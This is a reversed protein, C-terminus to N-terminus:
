LNFVYASRAICRLCLFQLLFWVVQVVLLQLIVTRSCFIMFLTCIILYVHFFIYLCIVLCVSGYYSYIFIFLHFLYVYM